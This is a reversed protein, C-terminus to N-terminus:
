ILSHLRLLLYFIQQPLEIRCSYLTELWILSMSPWVINERIFSLSTNKPFSLGALICHKSDFSHCLPDYYTRESLSTNLYYRGCSSQSAESPNLFSVKRSAQSLSGTLHGILQQLSRRAGTWGLTETHNYIKKSIKGHFYKGNLLSKKQNDISIFFVPTYHM